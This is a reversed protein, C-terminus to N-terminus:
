GAALDRPVRFEVTGDLPEVVLRATPRAVPKVRLFTSIRSTANKSQQNPSAEDEAQQEGDQQELESSRSMALTCSLPVHLGGRPVPLLAQDYFTCINHVHGVRNPKNGLPNLATAIPQHQSHPAQIPQQAATSSNCHLRSTHWGETELPQDVPSVGQGLPVGVVKQSALVSM